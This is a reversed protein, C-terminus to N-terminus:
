KSQPARSVKSIVPSQLSSPLLRYLASREWGGGGSSGVPGYLGLAWAVKGSHCDRCAVNEEAAVEPVDCGTLCVQATQMGSVVPVQTTGTLTGDSPGVKVPM